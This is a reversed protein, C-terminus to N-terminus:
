QKLSRIHAILNDIDSEALSSWPAMQESGGFKAAGNTIVLKLDEDTGPTGDGDADFKFSANTFDRPPPQLVAGVPGDGKGSEGHCTVCFMTYTAKGAEADGAQAVAPLLLTALGLAAIIKANRISM